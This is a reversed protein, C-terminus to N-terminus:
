LYGKGQDVTICQPRQPVRFLLKRSHARQLADKQFYRSQLVSQLMLDQGNYLKQQKVNRNTVWIGVNFLCTCM